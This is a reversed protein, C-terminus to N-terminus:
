SALGLVAPAFISEVTIPRTIIKQTTAHAILEELVLRNPAIGYPLPDAGSDLMRAYLKDMDDPDALENDRECSRALLAM